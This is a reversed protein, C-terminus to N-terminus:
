QQSIEALPLQQQDQTPTPSAKVNSSWQQPPAQYICAGADRTVATTTPLLWKWERCSKSGQMSNTTTTRTTTTTAHLMKLCTFDFSAFDMIHLVLWWWYQFTFIYLILTRVLDCWANILIPWASLASLTTPQQYHHKKGTNNSDSSAPVMARGHGVCM